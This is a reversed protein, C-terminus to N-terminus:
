RLAEQPDIMVAADASIHRFEPHGAEAYKLKDGTHHGNWCAVVTRQRSLGQLLRLPNHKLSVDFLVETNDFLIPDGADRVISGLIEVLKLQRERDTLDLLAKSVELNLNILGVGFERAMAQLTRTKGSGSPGVVLVLRHYLKASAEIQSLVNRNLM